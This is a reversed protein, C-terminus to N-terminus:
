PFSFPAQSGARMTYLCSLKPRVMKESDAHFRPLETESVDLQIAVSGRPLLPVPQIAVHPTALTKSFSLCMGPGDQKPQGIYIIYIYTTCHHRPNTWQHGPTWSAGTHEVPSSSRARRHFRTTLPGREWCGWPEFCSAVVWITPFSWTSISSRLTPTAISCCLSSM